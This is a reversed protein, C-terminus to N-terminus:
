QEVSRWGSNAVIKITTEYNWYNIAEPILEVPAFPRVADRNNSPNGGNQLFNKLLKEWRSSRRRWLRRAETIQEELPLYQFQYMKSIINPILHTKVLEFKEEPKDKRHKTKCIEAYFKIEEPLRGM